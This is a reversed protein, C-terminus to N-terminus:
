GGGCGGCGGGGCGGGGCGGGGGDSGGDGWDGGGFSWGSHVPTFATEFPEFASITSLLGIGFIAPLLAYSVGEPLKGEAAQTKLPDYYTELTRLYRRGLGTAWCVKRKHAWSWAYWTGMLALMLFFIPKDREIGLLLKGGGVVGLIGLAIWFRISALRRNADGHLLHRGRLKEKVPELCADLEARLDRDRVLNHPNRESQTARLLAAEVQDCGKAPAGRSKVMTVSKTCTALELEGRAWSDFCAAQIVAGTGGRLYAIEVPELDGPAPMPYDTSDDHAPWFYALAICVAALAAFEWLFDPGPISILLDIPNM